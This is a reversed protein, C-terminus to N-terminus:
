IESLRRYLAKESKGTLKRWEGLRDERPLPKIRRAIEWEDGIVEDRSRRVMVVREQLRSVVLEKWDAEAEGHEFQIRDGFSNMLIRLDLQRDASLSEDIVFEAVELCAEPSLSRENLMYGDGAIKRMLAAAEQQTVHLQTPNIRTGLANLEPVSRLPRNSVIIIGGDFHCRLATRLSNWTIVRQQRGDKVQGWLASRLVGQANRETFMQEMAALVHTSDPHKALVDFLGRGTMRSNHLKYDVKLRELEKLVSYSKGVGGEGYLFFGTTYRLAVSGTRDRVIAMKADLDKLHKVDEATM